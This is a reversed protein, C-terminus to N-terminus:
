ASSAVVIDMAALRNEVIKAKKMNGEAKFNEYVIPGYYALQRKLTEYEKQNNWDVALLAMFRDYAVKKSPRTVTVVGSKIWMVPRVLIAFLEKLCKFLDCAWQKIAAYICAMRASREQQMLSQKPKEKEKEVAALEAAKANAAKRAAKWKKVCVYGIMSTTVVAAISAIVILAIMMPSSASSKWSSWDFNKWASIFTNVYSSIASLFFNSSESSAAGANSQNLLSEASSTMGVRGNSGGFTTVRRKFAAIGSSSSDMKPYQRNKEIYYHFFVCVGSVIL